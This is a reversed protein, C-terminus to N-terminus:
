KLGGRGCSQGLVRGDKGLAKCFAGGWGTKESQPLGWYLQWRSYQSACKKHCIFYWRRGFCELHDELGTQKLIVHDCNPHEIASAPGIWSELQTVREADNTWYDRSMQRKCAPMITSSCNAIFCPHRPVHTREVMHYHNYKRAGDYSLPQIKQTIPTLQM